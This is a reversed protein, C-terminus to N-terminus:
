SEAWGPLVEDRALADLVQPIGDALEGSFVGRDGTRARAVDAVLGHVHVGLMAADFPDNGCLFAGIAGALVDGSGATALLPNGSTNVAIRGTPSAVITRAGKLVVVAKTAEVLRRVAGFRDREVEESTVGLLRSMEGPHPTLVLKGKVAALAKPRGKFLTIADADVVIPGAFKALVHEVVQRAADDLGFGPGVVVARRGKLAEDLKALPSQRDLGFSMVEPMRADLVGLAEAWTAITVVGAGARFAGRAALLAAGSKGASGACVLVAGVSFKHADAERPVVLRAMAKREIVEAVHGVKAVITDPVGLDAVHVRGAFRAGQPTLLGVKLHGFCM